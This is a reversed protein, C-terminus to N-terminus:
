TDAAVCIESLGLEAGNHTFGAPLEARAACSSRQKPSGVTEDLMPFVVFLLDFVEILTLVGAPAVNILGELLEARAACSSRGNPSGVPEVLVRDALVPDVLVPFVALLLAVVEFVTLVEAPAVYALGELLEARAACSSRGKPVGVAEDLVSVVALFLAVVEFVVLAVFTVFFVVAVFTVFFVVAVLTVFFVVAVFVAFLL